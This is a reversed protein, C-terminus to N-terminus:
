VVFIGIGTSKRGILALLLKGYKTSNLWDTTSDSGGQEFFEVEVTDAKARKVQPETTDTDTDDVTLLHATMFAQALSMQSPKIQYSQLLVDADSLAATIAVDDSFQPYRAKFLALDM